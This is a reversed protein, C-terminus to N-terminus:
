NEEVLETCDYEPNPACCDTCESNPSDYQGYNASTTLITRGDPCSLTITGSICAFAMFQSRTDPEPDSSTVKRTIQKYSPAVPELDQTADKLSQVEDNLRHDVQELAYM